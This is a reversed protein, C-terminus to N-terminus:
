KQQRIQRGYDGNPDDYRMRSWALAEEPSLTLSGKPFDYHDFNFAFDNVVEIDGVISLMSELGKMNMTM